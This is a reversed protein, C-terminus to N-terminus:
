ALNKREEGDLTLAAASSETPGEFVGASVEVTDTRKETSSTLVIEFSKDEDAALPFEQRILYYGVTSAQLVYNGPPLGTIRFTGDDATIARFSTGTLQIQVRGLPESGHSNIVRGHIEGGPQQAAAAAISIMVLFWRAHM